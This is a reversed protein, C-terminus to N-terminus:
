PHVRKQRCDLYYDDRGAVVQGGEATVSAALREFAVSTIRHAGAAARSLDRFYWSNEAGLVAIEM